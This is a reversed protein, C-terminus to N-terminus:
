EDDFTRDPAYDFNDAIARIARCVPQVKTSLADHAPVTLWM